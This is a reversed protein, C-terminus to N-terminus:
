HPEPFRPGPGFARWRCTRASASPVASCWGKSVEPSEWPLRASCSASRMSGSCGRRAASSWGASRPASPRQPLRRDQSATRPRLAQESRSGPSRRRWIHQSVADRDPVVGGRSGTSAPRAFRGFRLPSRRRGRGTRWRAHEGFCAFPRGALGAPIHDAPRHANPQDGSAGGGACHLPLRAKPVTEIFRPKSADDGLTRRLNAICQSLAEDTVPIGSWVDDLFRDRTILQGPNRVMLLLADLYRSNVEVPSGDCKLQRQSGDVVFRDFRFQAGM